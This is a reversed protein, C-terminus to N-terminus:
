TSRTLSWRALVNTMCAGQLELGSQGFLGNLVQQQFHCMSSSDCIITLNRGLSNVTGTLNLAKSGGCFTTGSICSYQLGSCTRTNVGNSTSQTCPSSYAFQEAGAYFLQAYVASSSPPPLANKVLAITCYAVHVITM